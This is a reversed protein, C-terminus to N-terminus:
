LMSLVIITNLVFLSVCRKLIKTFCEVICLTKDVNQKKKSRFSTCNLLLGISYYLTKFFHFLYLDIYISQKHIRKKFQHFIYIFITTKWKSFPVEVFGVFGRETTTHMHLVHKKHKSSWCHWRVSSPQIHIIIIIRRLSRAAKIWDIWSTVPFFNFAQEKLFEVNKSPVWRQNYQNRKCM